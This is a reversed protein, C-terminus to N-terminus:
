TAFYSFHMYDKYGSRWYIGQTFGYKSFIAVVEGDLPISYPDEGPRWYKGVLANGNPDCYYNENPNIDM